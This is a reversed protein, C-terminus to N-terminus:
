RCLLSRRPEKCTYSANPYDRYQHFEPSERCEQRLRGPRSNRATTHTSKALRRKWAPNKQIKKYFASHFIGHRRGDDARYLVSPFHVLLKNTFIAMKSAWAINRFSLESACAIMEPQWECSRM